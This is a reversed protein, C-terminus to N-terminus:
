LYISYNKLIETAYERILRIFPRFLCPFASTNNLNKNKLILVYHIHAKTGAFLLLEITTPILSYSIM